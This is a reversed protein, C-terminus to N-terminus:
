KASITKEVLCIRLNNINCGNAILTFLSRLNEDLNNRTVNQKNEKRKKKKWVIMSFREINVKNINYIFSENWVFVQMICTFYFLFCFFNFISIWDFWCIFWRLDSIYLKLSYNCWNYNKRGLEQRAFLLAVYMMKPSSWSKYKDHSCKEYKM